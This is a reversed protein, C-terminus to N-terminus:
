SAHVADSSVEGTGAVPPPTVDEYFPRGARHAAVKETMKQHYAAEKEPDSLSNTKALEDAYKRHFAFIQEDTLNAQQLQKFQDDTSLGAQQMQDKLAQQQMKMDAASLANAHEAEALSGGRQFVIQAADSTPQMYRQLEDSQSLKFADSAKGGVATVMRDIMRQRYEIAQKSKIQIPTQQDPM